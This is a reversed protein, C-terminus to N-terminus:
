TQTPSAYCRLKASTQERQFKVCTRLPRPRMERDILKETKDGLIMFNCGKLVFYALLAMQRIDAQGGASILLTEL